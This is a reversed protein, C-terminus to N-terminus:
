LEMLGQFLDDMSEDLDQKSLIDYIRNRSARWLKLKNARHFISSYRLAGVLMTASAKEDLHFLFFDLLGYLGFCVLLHIYRSLKTLEKVTDNHFDIEQKM